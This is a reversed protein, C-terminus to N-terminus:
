IAQATSRLDRNELIQKEHGNLGTHIIVRALESADIGIRPFLKYVFEFIWMSAMFQPSKRGPKIFGPRFIYSTHIESDLLKKEALGKAKAFLFPVRGTSDAGQASFLCFTIDKRSRELTLILADLYDVTIELFQKKSVKGQYVGLCYFCVDANSMEQELSSYDLFNAHEIEKIKPHKVETAKRGITLIREIKDSELCQYLVETGVMGTAGFVIVNLNTKM